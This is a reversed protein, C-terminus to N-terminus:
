QQGCSCGEKLGDELEELDVKVWAAAYAAAAAYFNAQREALAASLQPLWCALHHALFDKQWVAWKRAAPEEGRGRAAEEQLALFAMFALELGIHDPMAIEKLPAFTDLASPEFGVAEYLSAVAHAAPGSLPGFRKNAAYDLLASEFPPTYAASMPVFFCDFYQQRVEDALAERDNLPYGAELRLVQLQKPLTRPDPEQLFVAALFSYIEARSIEGEAANM